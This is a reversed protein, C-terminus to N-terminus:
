IHKGHKRKLIRTFLPGWLRLYGTFPPTGTFPPVLRSAEQCGAPCLAPLENRGRRRQRWRAMLFWLFIMPYIISFNYWRRGWISILLNIEHSWKKSKLFATDLISLIHKGFLRDSKLTKWCELIWHTGPSGIQVNEPRPELVRCSRDWSTRNLCKRVKAGSTSLISGPFDSKLAELLPCFPDWSIRNLCKRAKAGSSSLISGLVDSKLM